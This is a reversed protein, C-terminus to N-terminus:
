REAPKQGAQTPNRTASARASWLTSRNANTDLLLIRQTFLPATDTDLAVIDYHSALEFLAYTTGRITSRDPDTRPSLGEVQIELVRQQPWVVILTHVHAPIGGDERFAAIDDSLRVAAAKSLTVPDPARLYFGM